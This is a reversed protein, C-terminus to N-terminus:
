RLTEKQQSINKPNEHHQFEQWIETILSRSVFPYWFQHSSLQLNYSHNMCQFIRLNWIIRAKLTIKLTNKKKLMNAHWLLLCDLAKYIYVNPTYSDQTMAKDQLVHSKKTIYLWHLSPLVNILHYDQWNQCRLDDKMTVVM